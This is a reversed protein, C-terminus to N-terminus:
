TASKSTESARCHDQISNSKTEASIKQNFSLMFTYSYDLCIQNDIHYSKKEKEKKRKKNTQQQQQQKTTLFCLFTDSIL